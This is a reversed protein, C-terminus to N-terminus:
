SENFYVSFAKLKGQQNPLLKEEVSEAQVSYYVYETVIANSNFNCHVCLYQLVTVTNILRFSHLM